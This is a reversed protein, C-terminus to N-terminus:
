PLDVSASRSIWCVPPRVARSIVLWTSSLISRSCSRPIVILACVTRRDYVACSPDEGDLDTFYNDVANRVYQAVENENLVSREGKKM